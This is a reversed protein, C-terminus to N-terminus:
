ACWGMRRGGDYWRGLKANVMRRAVGEGDFLLIILKRGYRDTGTIKATVKRATWLQWHLYYTAAVARFWEGICGPSFLEPSDYALIRASSSGDTTCWIKVTDGDTVQWVKCGDTPTLFGKLGDLPVPGLVAVLAFVLPLKRLVAWSNRSPRKPPIGMNFRKRRRSNGRIPVINNGM